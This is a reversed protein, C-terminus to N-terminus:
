QEDTEEGAGSAGAIGLLERARNRAGLYEGSPLVWPPGHVADLLLALSEEVAALRATQADYAARVLGMPCPGMVGCTACWLQQSQHLEALIAGLDPAPPDSV